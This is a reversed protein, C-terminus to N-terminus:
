DSAAIAVRKKLDAAVYFFDVHGLAAKKQKFQINLSDSQQSYTSRKDVSAEEHACYM